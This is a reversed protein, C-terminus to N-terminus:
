QLWSAAVHHYHALVTGKLQFFRFVNFYTVNETWSVACIIDDFILNDIHALIWLNHLHGVSYNWAVHENVIYHTRTTDM